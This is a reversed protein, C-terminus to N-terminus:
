ESRLYISLVWALTFTTGMKKGHLPKEIQSSSSLNDGFLTDLSHDLAGFGRGISVELYITGLLTELPRPTLVEGM